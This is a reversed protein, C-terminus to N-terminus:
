GFQKVDDFKNETEVYSNRQELLWKWMEPDTLTPDWANHGTNEYITLRAKKSGWASINDILKKSEEPFVTPDSDGHLKPDFLINYREYDASSDIQIFHYHFPRIIILDGKKLKYKREEILHTADGNAIYLLECVLFYFNHFLKVKCNDTLASSTLIDVASKVAGVIVLEKVYFVNDPRVIEASFSCLVIVGSTYRKRIIVIKVSKVIDIENYVIGKCFLDIRYFVELFSDALSFGLDFASDIHQVLDYSLSSDAVRVQSHQYFLYEYCIHVSLQSDLYLHFCLEARM